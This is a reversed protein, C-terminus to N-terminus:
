SNPPPPTGRLHHVRTAVCHGLGPRGHPVGLDFRDQPVVVVAFVGGDVTLGAHSGPGPTTEAVGPATRPASPLLPRSRVTHRSPHLTALSQVGAASDRGDGSPSTSICLIEPGM